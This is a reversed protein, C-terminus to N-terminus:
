VAYICILRTPGSEAVRVDAVTWQEGDVDILAGAAIDGSLVCDHRRPTGALLLVDYQEPPSAAEVPVHTREALRV